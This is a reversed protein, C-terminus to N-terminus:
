NQHHKKASKDKHISNKLIKGSKPGKILDESSKNAEEYKSLHLEM